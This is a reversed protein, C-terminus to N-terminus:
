KPKKAEDAPRIEIEVANTEIRRELPAEKNGPSLKCIFFAVRITHKGPKLKLKQSDPAPRIPDDPLM